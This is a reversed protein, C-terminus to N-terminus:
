NKSQTNHPLLNPKPVMGYNKVKPVNSCNGITKALAKIANVVGVRLDNGHM